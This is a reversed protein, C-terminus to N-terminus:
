EVSRLDGDVVKAMAPEPNIEGNDKVQVQGATTSNYAGYNRLKEKIEEESLKEGGTARGILRLMDFGLYSSFIKPEEGYREKYRRNFSSSEEGLTAPFAVTYVGEASEGHKKREDEISLFISAEILESDMNLEKHETLIGSITAPGSVFLLKDPDGAKIKTMQAKVSKADFSFSETISVQINNEKALDVIADKISTGYFNNAHLIAIEDGEQVVDSRFAPEAYQRSTSYFRFAQSENVVPVSTISIMLPMKDRQSLSLLPRVVHSHQSIVLDVNDASKLKKYAKVGEEPKFLSDEYVVSINIGEKRLSELALEMGRQTGEGFVAAPGSLPLIAGVKLKEQGEASQDSPSQGACGALLLVAVLSVAIM